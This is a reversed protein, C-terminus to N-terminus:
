CFDAFILCTKQTGQKLKTVMSGVGVRKTAESMKKKVTFNSAHAVQDTYLFKDPIVGDKANKQIVFVDRIM